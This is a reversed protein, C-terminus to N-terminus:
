PSSVEISTLMRHDREPLQPYVPTKTVKRWITMRTMNLTNYTLTYTPSRGRAKAHPYPHYLVNISVGAARGDRM